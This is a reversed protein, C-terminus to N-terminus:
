SAAVRGAHRDPHGRVRHARLRGRGRGLRARRALRRGLDRRGGRRRGRPVAADGEAHVGVDALHKVAVAMSSTLNLMDVAGRGWVEGDILEGGFPDERWDDPSVPVVDTHGLLLLTPATPDSGEIRALV